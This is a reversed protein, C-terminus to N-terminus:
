DFLMQKGSKENEQIAKGKRNQWTVFEEDSIMMEVLGHEPQISYTNPFGQETINKIEKPHVWVRIQRM